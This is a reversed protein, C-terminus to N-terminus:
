KLEKLEKLKSEVDIKTWEKVLVPRGRGSDWRYIKYWQETRFHNDRTWRIPGGKVGPVRISLGSMAAQLTDRSCPWGCARLAEHVAVGAIWGEVDIRTVGAKAAADQIVKM